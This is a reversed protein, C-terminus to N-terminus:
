KFAERLKDVRGGITNNVLIDKIQLSTGKISIDKRIAVRITKGGIEKPTEIHDSATGSIELINEKEDFIRNLEAVIEPTKKLQNNKKLIYAFSNIIKSQKASPSEELAEFLAKSYQKVSRKM